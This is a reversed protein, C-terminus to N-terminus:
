GENKRKRFLYQVCRENTPGFLVVVFSVFYVFLCSRGLSEEHLEHREHNEGIPWAAVRGGRNYKEHIERREHNYEKKFVVNSEIEAIQEVEM